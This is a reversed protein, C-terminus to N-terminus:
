KSVRSKMALSVLMIMFCLAAVVALPFVYQQYPYRTVTGFMGMNTTQAYTNAYFASAGLISFMLFSIVGVAQWNKNVPRQEFSVPGRSDVKSVFGRIKNDITKLDSVLNPQQTPQHLQAGCFPCYAVGLLSIERGCQLCQM